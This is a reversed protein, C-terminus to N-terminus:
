DSRVHPLSRARRSMGAWPDGEADIRMGITKVTWADAKLSREALEDWRVPAAVPAKSRARPAYPAVVHQAYNNRNVDVYIKSGRDAKRWELTLRRPDEDVMEEAVSRAFKHVDGFGPGRRLPCIVHIGRSGTVM